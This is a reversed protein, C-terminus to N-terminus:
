GKIRKEEEKGILKMKSQIEELYSEREGEIEVDIGGRARVVLLDTM